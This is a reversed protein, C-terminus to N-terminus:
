LDPHLLGWVDNTISQTPPWTVGSDNPWIEAVWVVAEPELIATSRDLDIQGYGAYILRGVNFSFRYETADNPRDAPPDDPVSLTMSYRSKEIDGAHEGISIRVSDPPTGNEYLWKYHSLPVGERRHLLNLMLFTKFGWTAVALQDDVSLRIPKGLIMWGILPKARKELDSMWENNCTACVRKVGTEKAPAEWVEPAEVPAGATRERRSHWM